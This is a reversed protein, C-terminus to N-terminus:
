QNMLVKKIITLEKKYFEKLLIMKITEEFRSNDEIKCVNEKIKLIENIKIKPNNNCCINGM